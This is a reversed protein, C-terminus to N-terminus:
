PKLHLQKGGSLIYMQNHWTSLPMAWKPSNRFLNLLQLKKPGVLNLSTFSPHLNSHSKSCSKLRKRGLSPSLLLAMKKYGGFHSFICGKPTGDEKPCLPREKSFWDQTPDPCQNGEEKGQPGSISQPFFLLKITKEERGLFLHTTFEKSTWNRWIYSPALIAESVSICTNLNLFARQLNYTVNNVQEPVM